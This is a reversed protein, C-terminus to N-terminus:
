VPSIQYQAASGIEQSQSKPIVRMCAMILAEARDPSGPIGRQNRQEKTEIEVLGRSNERYRITSLQAQTEKDDLECIQDERLYDRLTFHAEAKQNVFQAVDIPKAGANFGYVDFGNDALHFAFNYGIGIIDVVVQGLRYLPHNRMERLFALVPGRPDPDPWARMAIILGGVRAYAVTEDKGAGAVDIGVQITCRTALLKEKETADRTAREVWTLPFCGYPDSSPFNALVRSQYAPHNPGWVHYRERVWQRSILFPYPSYALREADMECLEEITLARPETEHQLNPTDFASITICNHGASERTFADYFAGSPVVPNGMKLVRVQGGARVGEIADWIDAQIGPAEDAIILVRDGHLGQLNVGRSSSAGTAYRDEAIKLSTTTPEPLLDAVRGGRRALAIEEWFTKVQRLTPATVFAKGKPYAIIQHLPMGAAVFTKGSAHCGKVATLLGSQVSQVIERQKGWLTRNLWVRQFEAPDDVGEAFEWPIEAKAEM